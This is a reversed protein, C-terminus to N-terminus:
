LLKYTLNFDNETAGVGSVKNLTVMIQGCDTTKFIRNKGGTDINEWQLRFRLKVNARGSSKGLSLLALNGNATDESARRNNGKTYFTPYGDTLVQYITLGFFDHPNFNGLGLSMVKDTIPIRCIYKNNQGLYGINKSYNKGAYRYGAKRYKKINTVVGGVKKYGKYERRRYRDILLVPNKGMIKTYNPISVILNHCRTSILEVSEGLNISRENIYCNSYDTKDERQKYGWSFKLKINDMLNQITLQEVSDLFNSLRSSDNINNTSASKVQYNLIDRFYVGVNQLSINKANLLHTELLSSNYYTHYDTLVSTYGGVGFIKEGMGKYWSRTLFSPINNVDDPYSVEIRPITWSIHLLTSEPLTFTPLSNIIPSLNVPLGGAIDQPAFLELYMVGGTTATSFGYVIWAGWSGDPLEFRIRFNTADIEHKPPSGNLGNTGNAGVEGKDGKAGRLDTYVGWSGDPNTFRISYGNWQHTPATGNLGTLGRDGKDGKEGKLDVLEGWSGDPNSFMLKTGDWKHRPTEGDRGDRGNTGNTGNTGALGQIGQIGQIGQEGKDGKLNKILWNGNGIYIAISPISEMRIEWPLPPDTNWIIAIHDPCPNVINDLESAFKVVDFCCCDNEISQQIYDRFYVVNSTAKNNYSTQNAM